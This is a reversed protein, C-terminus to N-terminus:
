TRGSARPPSDVTSFTRSRQWGMIEHRRAPDEAVRPHIPEAASSLRRVDLPVKVGGVRRLARDYALCKRGPAVPERRLPEQPGIMRGANGGRPFAEAV